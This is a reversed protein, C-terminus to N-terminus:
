DVERMKSLLLDKDIRMYDCFAQTPVTSRDFLPIDERECYERVKKWNENILYNTAQPMAKKIDRKSIYFDIM